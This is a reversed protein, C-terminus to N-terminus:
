QHEGLVYWDEALIESQTPTWQLNIDYERNHALINMEPYHLKLNAHKWTRRAVREGWRLHNLADSFNLFNTSGNNSLATPM